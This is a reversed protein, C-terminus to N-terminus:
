LHPKSLGPDLQQVTGRQQVVEALQTHGIGDQVLGALQVLCFTGDHLLVGAQRAFDQGANRLIVFQRRNGAGMM